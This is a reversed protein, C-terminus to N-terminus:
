TGDENEFFPVLAQLSEIIGRTKRRDDKILRLICDCLKIRTDANLIVRPVPAETHSRQPPFLHKAFLDQATDSSRTLLCGSSPEQSSKSQSARPLLPLM